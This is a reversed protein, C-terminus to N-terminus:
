ASRAKVRNVDNQIRPEGGEPTYSRQTLSVTVPTPVTGFLSNLISELDVNEGEFDSPDAGMDVLDRKIRWLSNRSLNWRVLITRNRPTGDEDMFDLLFKAEINTGDGAKTPKAEWTGTVGDYDGSPLPEFSPAGAFNVAGLAM